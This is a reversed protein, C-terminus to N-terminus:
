ILKLTPHFSARQRVGHRRSHQSGSLAAPRDSTTGFTIQHTAIFRVRRGETPATRDGSSVIEMASTSPCTAHTSHFLYVKGTELRPCSRPCICALCAPPSCLRRQTKGNRYVAAQLAERGNTGLSLRVEVVAVPIAPMFNLPPGLVYSMHHCLTTGRHHVLVSGSGALRRFPSHM